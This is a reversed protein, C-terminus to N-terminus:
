LHQRSTGGHRQLVGVADDGEEIEEARKKTVGEDRHVVGLEKSGGDWTLFAVDNQTNYCHQMTGKECM